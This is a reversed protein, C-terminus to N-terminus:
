APTALMEKFGDRWSAHAPRWGLERKAKMNSSGRQETMMYVPFPGITELAVTEAMRKPAPAALLETYVPLWESTPTPADDVINYVGPAGRTLARTTAAAADDVHIFSYTGNGDGIIPMQGDRVSGAVFGDPAYMTGPGYFHGYRLVIGEMGDISLTQRELEAVADVVPRLWEPADLYLPTGEDVLGDGKPACVFSISQAIFRRAGGARGAAVLNRTGEIRLRNTEAFPDRATAGFSTLQHIVIDPGSRKAIDTLRTVDFVDGIVPEAGLAELDRTNGATRTIAAVKHGDKVLAPVLRRGIAGTAGALLINM